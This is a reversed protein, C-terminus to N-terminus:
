QLLRLDFLRNSKQWVYLQRDNVAMNPFISYPRYKFQPRNADQHKPDAVCTSLFFVCDLEERFITALMEAIKTM